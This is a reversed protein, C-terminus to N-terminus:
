KLSQIAQIITWKERIELKYKFPTIFRSVTIEREFGFGLEGFKVTDTVSVCKMHKIRLM